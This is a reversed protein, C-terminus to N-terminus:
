NRGKGKVRLTVKEEQHRYGAAEKGKESKNIKNSLGKSAELMKYM